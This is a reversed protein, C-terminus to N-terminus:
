EGGHEMERQVGVVKGEKARWPELEERTANQEM